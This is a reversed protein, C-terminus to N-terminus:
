IKSYNLSFTHKGTTRSRPIVDIGGDFSMSHTLAFNQALERSRIQLILLVCARTLEHALLTM